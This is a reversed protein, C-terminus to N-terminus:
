LLHKYMELFEEYSPLAFPEPLRKDFDRYLATANLSTRELGNKGGAEFAKKIITKSSNKMLERDARNLKSYAKKHTFPDLMINIITDIGNYPSIGNDKHKYWLDIIGLSKDENNVILNNPNMIDIESETYKNLKYIKNALDDFSSQPFESLERLKSLIIKADSYLIESGTEIQKIKQTWDSLSHSTGKVKKNIFFGHGNAAVYQGFNPVQSNQIEAAIPNEIFSKPTFSKREIRFIYDPVNPIDYANASFGSGIFNKSDEITSLVVNKLSKNKYAKHMQTLFDNYSLVGKFGIDNRYLPLSYSNKRNETDQVNNKQNTNFYKQTFTNSIPQIRM